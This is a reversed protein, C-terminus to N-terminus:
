RPGTNMQVTVEIGTPSDIKRWDAESMSLGTSHFAEKSFRARDGYLEILDMIYTNRPPQPGPTATPTSPPMISRNHEAVIVDRTNSDRCDAVLLGNVTEIEVDGHPEWIMGAILSEPVQVSRSASGHPRTMTYDNDKHPADDLKM